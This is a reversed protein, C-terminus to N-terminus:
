DTAGFIHHFLARGVSQEPADAMNCEARAKKVSIQLEEIRGLLKRKRDARAAGSFKTHEWTGVNVDEVILQTQAPHEKTPPQLVIGKQVKKTRSTLQPETRHQGTASDVSWIEASDLTPIKKVITYLDGLQKEIFLLFTVPVEKLIPQGSADNVDARASCNAYDKTATIDYLPIWRETLDALLRDASQQVNQKQPPVDEDNEDKKKYVKTFGDFLSPKQALKYLVDIEHQARQKATKEVAVVQSLKQM